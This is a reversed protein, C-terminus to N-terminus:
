SEGKANSSVPLYKKLIYFEEKPIADFYYVKIIRHDAIGFYENFLLEAKKPKLSNSKHLLIKSYEHEGDIICGNILYYNM